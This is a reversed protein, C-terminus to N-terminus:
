ITHPSNYITLPYISACFHKITEMAPNKPNSSLSSSYVDCWFLFYVIMPISFIYPSSITAWVTVGSSVLQFSSFWSDLDTEAVNDTRPWGSSCWIVGLSFIFKFSLTSQTLHAPDGSEVCSVTSNSDRRQFVICHSSLAQLPLARISQEKDTKEM